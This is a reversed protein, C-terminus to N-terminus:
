ARDGIATWGSQGKVEGGLLGLQSSQGKEGPKCSPEVWGQILLGGSSDTREQDPEGGRNEDQVGRAAKCV